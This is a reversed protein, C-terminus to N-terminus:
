KLAKWAIAAMQPATLPEEAIKLLAARLRDFETM